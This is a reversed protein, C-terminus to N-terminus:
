SVLYKRVLEQFTEKSALDEYYAMNLYDEAVVMDGDVIEGKYNIKWNLLSNILKFYTYGAYSVASSSILGDIGVIAHLVVEVPSLGKRFSSTIFHDPFFAINKSYQLGVSGVIQYLHYDTSKTNADIQAKLCGTKCDKLVKQFQEYSLGKCLTELEQIEQLSICFLMDEQMVKLYYEKLKVICDFCVKSGYLDYIVKLTVNLDPHKYPLFDIVDYKLHYVILMDNTPKLKIGMAFSYMNEESNLITQCEAQGQLNLTVLCSIEDGDFDANCLSTVELPIGFCDHPWCGKVKLGLFNEPLLSPMRNLILWKGKLNMKREMSEPIIIENPKLFPAPVIMARATLIMRKALAIKRYYTNKGETRRSLSGHNLFAKQIKNYMCIDEESTKKKQATRKRKKTPEYGIAYKLVLDYILTSTIQWYIPDPLVLFEQNTNVNYKKCQDLLNKPLFAHNLTKVAISQVIYEHTPKFYFNECCITFNLRFSLKNLCKLCTESTVHSNRWCKLLYLVLHPDDYKIPCDDYKLISLKYSTVAM